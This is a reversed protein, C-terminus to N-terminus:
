NENHKGEVDAYERSYKSNSNQYVKSENIVIFHKRLEELFCKMEDPLGTIRIKIM